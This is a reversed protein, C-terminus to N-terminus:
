FLPCFISIQLSISCAFHYIGTQIQESTALEVLKNITGARVPRKDNQDVDAYVDYVLYEDGSPEAWIDVEPYLQVPTLKIGRTEM